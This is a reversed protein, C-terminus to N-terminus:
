IARGIFMCWNIQSYALHMEKMRGRDILSPLPAAFLSCSVYAMGIMGDFSIIFKAESAAQRGAGAPKTKGM